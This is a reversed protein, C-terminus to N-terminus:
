TRGGRRRRARARAPEARERAREADEKASMVDSCFTIMGHWASRRRVMEHVIAALRLNPGVSQVLVRRQSEWAPCEQLTHRASDDDHGCHNCQATEQRGIRHLYAGFCGHGTLVQTLHFTVRGQCRLWGELNPSVAEIVQQRQNRPDQLRDQWSRLAHRNANRRIEETTEVNINETRQRLARIKQYIRADRDALIDLPPFRGLVTAAEHSITRYGRAVRIAITRQASNLKRARRRCTSLKDSWVPAGYLAISRVVGAYLRRVEERPGGLNPLLGHLAGAVRHLRPVLHDFHEEFCWRSDLTLGLYRMSRGIRVDTVGVRLSTEAPEAGHRLGHFWIAETKHSAVELGISRIRSVVRAVGFEALRVTRDFSEGECLVLTDDAYCIVSVGPPLTTKLVADYTINWLLPGLVSGQPVGREVIRGRVSGYRGPYHISRDSLYARLVNHLYSPVQHASLGGLIASWPLSNFANVIDLSVALVVRGRSIAEESLTRVRLIADVTSRQRRFGFQNESLDPGRCALHASIRASIIREFLKGAEDLLCIPRYASPSDRPRGQKHLLILRARRWQSPFVGQRLCATFLGQVRGKLVPLACVWARGPVGDPGPAVNRGSMRGCAALLESESVAWEESWTVSPSPSPTPSPNDAIPPFLSGVITEVFDPNLTETLPPVWPRLKGLVTKYPRGWPDRDLEDVLAKWNRAKSEAIARQLTVTADRYEAYRAERETAGASRRRRARTYQRRARLCVARLEAIQESWWYVPHRREPRVRPMATDCIATMDDTLRRAEEEPDSHTADSWDAVHAAAVLLDRNLQKVAWRRPREFARRSNAAPLRFAVDMTIHRHDSLTVLEEAVRWGVVMREAPLTAWSLDIVSEGQWRVCTSASGHNLLRLDLAAAWELTAEGKVTDRRDGWARSHANFDGLVIVPRPLCSRVCDAVRDLFAEYEALSCNPSAYCGLVALPGWEVAVLGQEAHLKSCPPEGTNGRWHVAVSHSVDGFWRPHEPVKYPEAVVALSVSGDVLCQMLIDQAARCHNLNGQLLKYSPCRDM